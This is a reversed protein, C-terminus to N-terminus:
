ITSEDNPREGLIEKILEPKWPEGMNEIAFKDLEAKKIDWFKSTLAHGRVVKNFLMLAYEHSMGSHGEDFHTDVLKMVANGLMGGYDSDKNFFGALELNLKADKRASMFDGM